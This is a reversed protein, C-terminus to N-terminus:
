IIILRSSSYSSAISKNQQCPLCKRYWSSHTSTVIGATNSRALFNSTQGQTLSTTRTSSETIGSSVKQQCHGPWCLLVWRLKLKHLRRAVPKPLRPLYKSTQRAKRPYVPRRSIQSFNFTHFNIIVVISSSCRLRCYHSQLRNSYQYSSHLKSQQHHMCLLRDVPKPLHFELTSCALPKTPPPVPVSISFSLISVSTTPLTSSATFAPSAEPWGPSM